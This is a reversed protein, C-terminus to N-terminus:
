LDVERTIEVTIRWPPGDQHVKVMLELGAKSAANMAVKLEEVKARVASALARDVFLQPTEGIGREILIQNTEDSYDDRVRM